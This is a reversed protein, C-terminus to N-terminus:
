VIFVIRVPTRSFRRLLVAATPLQSYRLRSYKILVAAYTRRVIQIALAAFSRSIVRRLGGGEGDVCGVM